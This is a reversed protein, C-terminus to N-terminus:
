DYIPHQIAAYEPVERFKVSVQDWHYSNVGAETAADRMGLDCHTMKDVCVRKDYQTAYIGYRDYWKTPVTSLAKLVIKASERDIACGGGLIFSGNHRSNHFNGWYGPFPPLVPDYNFRSDPDLKICWGEGTALFLKLWRKNWAQGNGIPKLRNGHIQYDGAGPFVGDGICYITHKSNVTSVLQKLRDLDGEWCHILIM